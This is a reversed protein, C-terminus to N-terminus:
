DAGGNTHDVLPGYEQSDPVGGVMGFGVWNCTDLVQTNVVGPVTGFVTAIPTDSFLLALM